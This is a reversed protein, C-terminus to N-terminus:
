VSAGGYPYFCAIQHELEIMELRPREAICREQVYPCRCSFPCGKPVEYPSPISGEIPILEEASDLLAKTYPHKVGGDSFLMEASVKEIVEGCYMVLVNDATEAVVGLDHTILILATSFKHQLNKILDLIQAQITVDLATTPEDAILISPSCSLAMAIMVRQRMGGSLQHPYKDYVIEPDAIEALALMKIAAEKAKNKGEHIIISEEIQKGVTFVPNLSTMPEQFIMAIEKGRIAEMEREPIQLLDKGKYMIKGQVQANTDDLLRLISLSTISKGSGSEGVVALIEKQSLTFSINDVARVCGQRMAFSVKLQEINLLVM